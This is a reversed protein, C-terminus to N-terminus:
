ASVTGDVNTGSALPIYRVGGRLLLLLTEAGIWRM